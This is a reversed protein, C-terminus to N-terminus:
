WFTVHLSQQDSIPQLSDDSAAKNFQQVACGAFSRVCSNRILKKFLSFCPQKMTQQPLVSQGRTLLQPASGAFTHHLSASHLLKEPTVATSTACSYRCIFLGAWELATSFQLPFAFRALGHRVTRFLASNLRVVCHFLAMFLSFLLVICAYM